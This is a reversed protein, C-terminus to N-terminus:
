RELCGRYSLMIVCRSTMVRMQTVDYFRANNPDIVRIKKTVQLILFLSLFIIRM